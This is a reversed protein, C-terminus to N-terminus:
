SGVLSGKNDAISSGHRNKNKNECIESQSKKGRRRSFGDEWDEISGGIQLLKQKSPM